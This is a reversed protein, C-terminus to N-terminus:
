PVVHIEIMAEGVSGAPDGLVATYVGPPLTLMLAADKSGTTFSVAGIRAFEAALVSAWNDNRAVPEGSRAFVTITPDALTGSHSLPGATLAPGLGRIILTKATPGEITFGAVLTADAGIGVVQRASLQVLGSSNAAGLDFMELLGIGNTMASFHVTSHGTVRRLLAADASGGALPFAGAAAFTDILLAGGGWRDNSELQAGSGDFFELRPNAALTAGNIFPQLGPGIGRLLVSQDSGRLNFTVILPQQGLLTARISANAVRADSSLVPVGKVVTEGNTLYLTGAADVAISAGFVRSVTSVVGNTIRRILGSDLVFLNGASDLALSRPTQFRTASGTGDVYGPEGAKGAITTVVGDATIRRITHNGSDAVYLTGLSDFALGAPNFFRAEAGTGDASGNQWPTGALTTMVGAPTVRRITGEGSLSVYVNGVHDVALGGPWVSFSSGDADMRAPFSALSTVSGNPSLRRVDNGSGDAFYINGMGDAGLGRISSYEPVAGSPRGLTTVTGDPTIKRVALLSDGVYVHGAHDVAIASPSRFRANSGLGDINGPPLGAVTTTTGQPTIKRITNNGSDAVFVNGGADVALGGPLAFQAETGNADVHGTELKSGALTTVAGSPTVKLIVGRGLGGFDDAFSGYLNGEEDIALGRLGPIVYVPMGGAVSEFIPEVPNGPLTTVVGTPSIKRIRGKELSDFIEPGGGETVAGGRSEWLLINGARDVVPKGWRSFRAASGVGDKWGWLGPAGALTTVVGDATVRRITFNDVVVVAGNADTAIEIAHGFRAASGSGDASGSEGNKGAVTIVEGQPSVKRITNRDGVYVLGSGDVAISEPRTFRAAEGIGDDSGNQGSKGALTTVVGAPTMKRIVANATDAIYVNGGADIALDRPFRFRAVEGTGDAHGSSAVGAITTFTYTQATVSLSSIGLWILVARNWSVAPRWCRPSPIMPHSSTTVRMM